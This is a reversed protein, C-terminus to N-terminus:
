RDSMSVSRWPLPPLASQLLTLPAQLQRQYPLPTPPIALGVGRARSRAVTVPVNLEHAIHLIYTKLRQPSIEPGLHIRVGKSSLSRIKHRFTHYLMPEMRSGRGMHRAEDLPIDEFDIIPITPGDSTESEDAPPLVCQIGRIRECLTRGNPMMVELLLVPEIQVIESELMGMQAEVGDNVLRWSVRGAIGRRGPSQGRGM